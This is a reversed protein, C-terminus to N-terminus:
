EATLRKRERRAGQGKGLRQDLVALQENNSREARKIDRLVRQANRQEVVAVTRRQRMSDEM